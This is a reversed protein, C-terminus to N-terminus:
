TEKTDFRRPDYLFRGISEFPASAGPLRAARTARNPPKTKCKEIDRAARIWCLHGGSLRFVAISGRQVVILAVARARAGRQAGAERDVCRM